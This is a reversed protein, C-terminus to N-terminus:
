YSGGCSYNSYCTTTGPSNVKVCSTGQCESHYCSYDGYCETTGKGSVRKCAGNDCVSHYCDSSIYCDNTGEGEVYVCSDNQCTYHYKKSCDSYSSCKNKGRSRVTACSYNQCEYHWYGNSYSHGDLEGELQVAKYIMNNWNSLLQDESSSITQGAQLKPVVSELAASMRTLLDKLESLKNQDYNGSDMRNWYGVMERTRELASVWGSVNYQTTQTSGQNGSYDPTYKIPKLPKPIPKNLSGGVILNDIKSQAYKSSIAFAFNDIGELAVKWNNIGIIGCKDSMPGGSNGPNIAADTQVFDIGEQTSYTRSYIGKTITSEGSPELPWGVVYVTGALETLSSDSWDCTPIDQDHKLVALDDDSYNWVTLPKESNVWTTIKKAGEIVHRNTVLYGPKISFGTGHGGDDRMILVTCNKVKALTEQENCKNRDVQNTESNAVQTNPSDNKSIGFVIATGMMWYAILMIATARFRKTNFMIYSSILTMMGFLIVIKNMNMQGIEAMIKPDTTEPSTMFPIMALGFIFSLIGSLTLRGFLKGLSMKGLKMLGLGRVTIAIGCLLIIMPLSYHVLKNEEPGIGDVFLSILTIALGLLFTVPGNKPLKIQIVQLKEDAEM